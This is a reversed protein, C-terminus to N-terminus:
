RQRPTNNDLRGISGSNAVSGAGRSSANGTHSRSISPPCPLAKEVVVEKTQVEPTPPYRWNAFGLGLSMLIGFALLLITSRGAVESRKPNPTNSTVISSSKIQVLAAIAQPIALLFAGYEVVKSMEM